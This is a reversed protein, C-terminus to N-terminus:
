ELALRLEVTIADLADGREVSVRIVSEFAPLRIAEALFPGFQRYLGRLPLVVQLSRSGGETQAQVLVQGLEMAHGSAMKAFVDQVALVAAEDLPKRDPVKLPPWDAVHAAGRLEAYIPYLTKQVSLQRSAVDLARTLHTYERVPMVLGLSEVLIVAGLAAPLVLRMVPLRMGMGHGNV